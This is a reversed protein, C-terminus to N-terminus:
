RRSEVSRVLGLIDTLVVAESVSRVANELWQCTRLAEELANMRETVDVFLMRMGAPKGEPTRIM